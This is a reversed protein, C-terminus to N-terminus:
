FSFNFQDLFVGSAGAETSTGTLSGSAFTVPNLLILSVNHVAPDNPDLCVSSVFLFSNPPHAAIAFAFSEGPASFTIGGFVVNCHQLEPPTSPTCGFPQPLCTTYDGLNNLTGRYTGHTGTTSDTWTGQLTYIGDGQPLEIGKATGTSASAVGAFVLAGLLAVVLAVRTTWSM